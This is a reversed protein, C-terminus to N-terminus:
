GLEGKLAVVNGGQPPSELNMLDGNERISFFRYGLAVLINWAGWPSLGLAASAEQNVEFVVTPRSGSLLSRAGSLILEEAGEADIKVVDVRHVGQRAVLGDLTELPVEESGHPAEGAACLANRSPDPHHSLRATGSRDALACRFLRVNALGNLRANKELVRFADASPEFALVLGSEGVAKAAVATYVGYAAGVDVVVMGSRLNAALYGLELEYSEGFVYLLKALGRWKPPLWLRANHQLEITAPIGLACRCRWDALRLATSLPARRYGHHSRLYRYKADLGRFASWLPRTESGRVAGVTESLARFATRSQRSSIAALDGNRLGRAGHGLASTESKGDPM